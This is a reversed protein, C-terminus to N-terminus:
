DNATPNIVFEFTYVRLENNGNGPNTVNNCSITYSSGKKITNAINIVGSTSGNNQNSTFSLQGESTNNGSSIQCTLTGNSNNRSRYTMYLKVSNIDTNSIDQTYQYSGNAFTKVRTESINSATFRHNSNNYTTNSISGAWMAYFKKNGTLGSTTTVVNGNLNASDNWGMFDADYTSEPDKLTEVHEVDYQYVQNIAQVGDNLEYEINYIQLWKAYITIDDNINSLTTIQTGDYSSNDYWGAFRYGSRTPDALNISGTPLIKDPNPNNGGSTNYTIRYYRTITVNNLPNTITLNPSTYSSTVNTVAVDYPIATTNNFTITRTDDELIASPLSSTNNFGIYTIDYAEKFDFNLEIQYNTNGSNYGNQVYSIEIQMSTVSGLTCKNQISSDCLKDKLTYDSLTYKLNNPLGTIQYIGMPVTGINTIYIKYTVSSNSNPLSISSTIINNNYTEYNSSGNNSTNSVTMQTVRIVKQPRIIASLNVISLNATYASFGASLFIITVIIAVFVINLTRNKKKIYNDKM